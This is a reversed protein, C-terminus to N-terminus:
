LTQNFLKSYAKVYDQFIHSDFGIPQYYYKEGAKKERFSGDEQQFLDVAVSKLADSIRHAKIM